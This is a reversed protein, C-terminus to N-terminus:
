REVELDELDRDWSRPYPVPSHDKSSGTHKAAGGSVGDLDKESLETEQEDPKKPTSM